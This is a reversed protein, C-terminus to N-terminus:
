TPADFLYFVCLQWISMHMAPRPSKKNWLVRFECHSRLRIVTNQREVHIFKTASISSYFKILAIYADRAHTNHHTHKWLCQCTSLGCTPYILVSPNQNSTCKAKGNGNCWSRDQGADPEGRCIAHFINEAQTITTPVINISLAYRSQTYPCLSIVM